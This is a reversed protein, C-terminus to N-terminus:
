DTLHQIIIIIHWRVIECILQRLWRVSAHRILANLKNILHVFLM